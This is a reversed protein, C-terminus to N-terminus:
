RPPPSGLEQGCAYGAAFSPPASQMSSGQVLEWERELTRWGAGRTNSAMGSSHRTCMSDEALTLLTYVPANLVRLVCMRAVCLGPSSFFGRLVACSVHVCHPLARQRPSWLLV